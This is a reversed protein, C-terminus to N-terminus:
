KNSFIFGGILLVIFIPPMVCRTKVALRGWASIKPVFSRHHTRDILHSFSMLLGPMLTFVALLSLVIAKM